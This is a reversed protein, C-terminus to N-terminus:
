RRKASVICRVLELMVRTGSSAGDTSLGMRLLVFRRLEVDRGPIQAHIM